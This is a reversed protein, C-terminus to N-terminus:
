EEENSIIKGTEDWYTFMQETDTPPNQGQIPSNVVFGTTEKITMSEGFNYPLETKPYVKHSGIYELRMLVFNTSSQPTHVEFTTYDTVETQGDHSHITLQEVNINLSRRLHRTILAWLDKFEYSGHITFLKQFSSGDVPAFNCDAEFMVYWQM